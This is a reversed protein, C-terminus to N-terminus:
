TLFPRYDAGNFLAREAQRRKMLGPVVVLQGNVHAEDYKLLADAAQPLKDARILKLVDSDILRGAGENFCFSVLADFEWQMLGISEGIIKDVEVEVTRIDQDFKVLSKEWTTYMTPATAKIMHGIGITVNGALDRYAQSQYGEFHQIVYIGDRSTKM